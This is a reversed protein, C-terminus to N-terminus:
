ELLNQRLAELTASTTAARGRLYAEVGGYEKDLVDLAAAMVWRPAELFALAAENSMGTSVFRELIERHRERTLARGTLEYDDLVIPRDVGLWSLLLATALGTRDKGGACHIVAPLSAPDALACFLEGFLPGATELVALYVDLLRTEADIVTKLASGDTFEERPVRSELPIQRSAMPDPHRTREDDSRLDFVTCIGLAEFRVLDHATLRSLADSRFVRGWRTRLGSATPYGGLDRFNVVGEFGIRRREFDDPMRANIEGDSM